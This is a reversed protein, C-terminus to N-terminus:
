TYEFRYEGFHLSIMLRMLPRNRMVSLHSGRKVTPGGTSLVFLYWGMIVSVKCYSDIVAVTPIGTSLCVFVM